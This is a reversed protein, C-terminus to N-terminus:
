NLTPYLARTDHSIFNEKVKNNSNQRETYIEHAILM